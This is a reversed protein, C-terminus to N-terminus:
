IQFTLPKPTQCIAGVTDMCVYPYKLSPNRGSPLFPQFSLSLIELNPWHLSKNAPLSHDEEDLPWLFDLSVPVEGLQLERLSLSLERIRISLVDVSSSLVNLAPVVDQWDWEYEYAFHFVRLSLSIDKLGEAVAVHSDALFRSCQSYAMTTNSSLFAEYGSATTEHIGPTRTHDVSGPGYITRHTGSLTSCDADHGRGM